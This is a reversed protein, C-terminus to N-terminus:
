KPTGFIEFFQSEAKVETWERKSHMTQSEVDVEGVEVVWRKM